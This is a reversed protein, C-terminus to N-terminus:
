SHPAILAKARQVERDEAGGGIARLKQEILACDVPRISGADRMEFRDNAVRLELMHAQQEGAVAMARDSLDLAAARDGASFRCNAAALLVDVKAWRAGTQEMLALAREIHGGCADTRGARQLADGYIGEVYPLVCNTGTARVAELAREIAAIAEHSDRYELAWRGLTVLGLAHWIGFGQEEAFQITDEIAAKATQGDSAEFAHAARWNMVYNISFPNNLRRALEYAQQLQQAALDPQGLYWRAMAARCGCIAGPDQGYLALYRQHQEESYERVVADLYHLAQGWAGRWWHTIGLAYDAEVSLTADDFQDALDRLRHALKLAAHTDGSVAAQVTLGLVIPFEELGFGATRCRALAARFANAAEGSAHGHVATNVRGLSTLALVERRDRGSGEPLAAILALAQQVFRNAERNAARNNALDAARLYYDIASETRGAHELHHALLALDASGRQRVGGLLADAIAGHLEARRSRLLSQYAADQLLAHKFVLTRGRRYVLESAVLADVAKGLSEPERWVKAMLDLDLERGIVAAVQAVEKVEGLRDLRAMLSDHLTAPVATVEAGGGMVAAAMEEVYLPVGDSRQLIAEVLAPELCNSGLRQEVLDEVAARALRNLTMRTLYPLGPLAPEGDPRTTMLVFVRRREISCLMRELWELTSPDLWHVDEFLVLVPKREALGFLQADLLDLLAERRREASMPPLAEGSEIELLDAVLAMDHASTTGGQHLMQRLCALQDTTAMADSLGAAISLQQRVPWLPSDSQQPSTQYQLVTATNRVVSILAAALRSKGIGPEGTLLVAQGEGGAAQSWRDVVLALEHDRGLMPPLTGRHRAEFRNLDRREGDVRFVSVPHRFGKLVRAELPRVDFQGGVLDHTTSAIVVSGPDALDQLRSALNPTEGTLSEAGGSGIDIVVMGTAIGVRAALPRGAPDTMRGIAETIALGARVAQAAGDELASPWGFTAVVGDGPFGAAHGGYQDLARCVCARYSRLLEHMDEADIATSLETSGVLDTFVITLQRRELLTEGSAPPVPQRTMAATAPDPPASRTAAEAPPNVDDLSLCHLLAIRSTVELKRYIANLHTRVTGPSIGLKRAIEKYSHGEVYLNAVEAERKSLAAVADTTM